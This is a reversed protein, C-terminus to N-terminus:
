RLLLMRKVASMGGARIQYFYVGSAVSYGSSAIGDWAVTHEGESQEADVLTKVRRGLLDYIQLQVTMARPLGYRITTGPNFPNPYNSWLTLTSPLQPAPEQQSLATTRLGVPDPYAQRVYKALWKVYDITHIRDGGQAGVVAYVVEQTDGLAMTCPGTNMLFRRDGPFGSWITGLGDIDGTRTVPDGSYKFLTPHGAGDELERLQGNRDPIYGRMWRWTPLLGPTGFAPDSIATGTWKAYVSQLGLNRMGSHPTFGTYGIDGEDGRVLPGQLLMWAVTPPIISHRYSGGAYAFGTTPVQLLGYSEDVYTYGLQLTTDCGQLDNGSSVIDPDVFKTIFLSDIRASPSLSPTGKFILRYRVFITNALAGVTDKYGWWTSQVEMGIPLSGYLSASTAPDLDNVVSWCVMDADLLGPAEDPDRVGNGNVDYFPAGLSAPWNMWDQRYQRRLLDTELRTISDIPTHFYDAADQRLDATEYDKRIRYVRTPNYGGPLSTSSIPGPQVGANYHVGTIRLERLSGSVVYGGWELDDAYASMAVHAPFTAYTISTNIRLDSGATLNSNIFYLHNNINLPVTTQSTDPQAQSQTIAGTIFLALCLTTRIIRQM